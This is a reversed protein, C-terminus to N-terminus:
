VGWSTAWNGAGQPRGVLGLWCPFCHRDWNENEKGVNSMPSAGHRRDPLLPGHGHISLLTDRPLIDPFRSSSTSRKMALAGYMENVWPHCNIKHSENHRYPFQKIDEPLTLDSGSKNVDVASTCINWSPMGQAHM